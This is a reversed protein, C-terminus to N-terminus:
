GRDDEETSTTPTIPETCPCPGLIVGDMGCVLGEDNCLPCPTPTIPGHAPHKQYFGWNREWLGCWADRCTSDDEPLTDLFKQLIDLGRSGM